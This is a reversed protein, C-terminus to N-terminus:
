FNIMEMGPYEGEKKKPWLSIQGHRVCFIVLNPDDPGKAGLNKLFQRDQLVKEKLAADELFEVEGRVRMMTYPIEKDKSHFCIETRFDEKLQKYLDKFAWAQFYFGDEKAFWLGMMRVRPEGNEVTAMSCDKIKNAFIICDQFNM